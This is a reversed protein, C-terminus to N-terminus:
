YNADASHILSKPEEVGISAMLRIVPNIVDGLLAQLPKATNLELNSILALATQYRQIIQHICYSVAGCRILIGQAESLAGPESIRERLYRFYDKEPHDVTQAFLIPLPSRGLIWDPNAPVAMVDNLDDHIQILEGYIHGFEKFKESTEISVGSILAGIQLGTGFFPASKTRILEWYADESNPNQVDLYQGFATKLIMQNISQLAALKVNIALNSQVLADIGAAQFAVALNAASAEGIRNYAGRPDADLMDDILIISIQMCAIAAIGPVLPEYRGGIAECALVPLQWDRPKKKTIIELTTRMDPWSNVIPLDMLYRFVSTYFEM